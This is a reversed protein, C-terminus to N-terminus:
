ATINSLLYGAGTFVFAEDVNHRVRIVDSRRQEERYSETTLNQPSDGTWLFTRGLVPEKMDQTTGRPVKFLGFYEDDWIDAISYAQGKKAGDKIAGGVLVEDLGFYQALLRRQAEEGGIEVPNTYKFADMIEDAFMLNKFVVSSCVGINPRLGSALRMAEKATFVNARPTCTAATSWETGVGATQTINATNFVAAAIRAEQNRLLIDVARMTAIEDADIDNAYLNREADDILEEWGYEECAYTGTEFKYDSRNYDGRAARKTNPLKIMAEIPIVPYNASQDNVEKIPLISLGIFGRQSAELMYEYAVTSLDRRLTTGSPLRPM